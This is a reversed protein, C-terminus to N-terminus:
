FVMRLQNPEVPQQALPNACHCVSTPSCGGQHRFKGKMAIGGINIAGLSFFFGEHVIGPPSGRSVMADSITLNTM